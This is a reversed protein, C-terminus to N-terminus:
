PKAPSPEAKALVIAQALQKADLTGEIRRGNILVTPTSRIGLRAGLQADQEVRKRAEPSSLCAGFRAIELGLDEAYKLLFTRGLQAQNDFLQNHYEWFKGQEAACEAAVAALCANEHFPDKVTPNCHADLPFHHFVVSVDSTMRRLVTDLSRHFANCHGCEFDSFEVIQVAATAAGRRNGGTTPMEIGPRAVFWDYFERDNAQISEVSESPPAPRFIEFAVFGVLLVAVAAGIMLVVRDSAEGEVASVTTARRLWWTSAFLGVAVLYLGSCMLCIAQIQLIAIGAMYGSFAVSWLSMLLLTTTLLGRLRASRSLCITIVLAVVGLYFCLSWISVSVGFMEAAPSGLVTSCSVRDNM